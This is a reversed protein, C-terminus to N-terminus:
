GLLTGHNCLVEQISAHDNGGDCLITFPSSQCHEMAEANFAPALAHKVIANTKTRSCSFEAAIQSDLFMVKCLKTLQDAALFPMNHEAIFTVFYVEATTVQDELTDKRFSTLLTSQSAMGLAFERHKKWRHTM